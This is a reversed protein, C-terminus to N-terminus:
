TQSAATNPRHTRLWPFYHFVFGTEWNRAGVTVFRGDAAGGEGELEFEQLTVHPLQQAFNCCHSPSIGDVFM